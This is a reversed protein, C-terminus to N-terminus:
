IKLDSKLFSISVKAFDAEKQMANLKAFSELMKFLEIANYAEKRNSEDLNNIKIKYPMDSVSGILRINSIDTRTFM